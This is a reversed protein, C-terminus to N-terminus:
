SPVNVLIIKFIFNFKISYFPNFLKFSCFNVQQKSVLMCTIFLQVTIILSIYLNYPKRYKQGEYLGEIFVCKNGKLLM